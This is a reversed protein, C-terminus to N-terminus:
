MYNQLAYKVTFLLKSCCGCCLFRDDQCIRISVIKSSFSVMCMFDQLYLLSPIHSIQLLTGDFLVLTLFCLGMCMNMLCVGIYM